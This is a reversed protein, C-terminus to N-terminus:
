LALWHPLEVVGLQVDVALLTVSSLAAAVSVTSLIRHRPKRRVPREPQMHERIQRLAVDTADEELPSGPPRAPLAPYMRSGSQVPAQEEVPPVILDEVGRLDEVLLQPAVLSLPSSEAGLLSQRSRVPFVPYMRSGRHVPVQEEAAPDDPVVLLQPAVPNLPSPEDLPTAEDAAVTEDRVVLRDRAWVRLDPDVLVLEPSVAELGDGYLRDAAAAM